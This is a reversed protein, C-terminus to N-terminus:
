DKVDHFVEEVSDDYDELDPVDLEGDARRVATHRSKERKRPINVVVILFVGLAVLFLQSFGPRANSELVHIYPAKPFYYATDDVEVSIDSGRRETSGERLVGEDDYFSYYISWQYRQEYPKGNDAGRLRRVSVDAAATEGFFYLLFGSVAVFVLALGILTIMMRWFINSAKGKVNM